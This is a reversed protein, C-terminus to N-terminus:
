IRSNTQKGHTNEKLAYYATLPAACNRSLDLSGLEVYGLDTKYILLNNYDEVLIHWGNYKDRLVGLRKPNLYEVALLSNDSNQSSIECPNLVGWREWFGCSIIEIKGDGNLDYEMTITQEDANKQAVETSTIERVSQLLDAKRTSSYEISKGDFKYTIYVKNLETLGIDYRGDRGSIYTFKDDSYFDIESLDFVGTWRDLWKYNRQCTETFYLIIFDPSCGNLVLYRRISTQHQPVM